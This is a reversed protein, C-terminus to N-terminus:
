RRYEIKCFSYFLVGRLFTNKALNSCTELMIVRSKVLVGYKENINSTLTQKISGIYDATGQLVIIDLDYYRIHLGIYSFFYIYRSELDNDYERGKLKEWIESGVERNNIQIIFATYSNGFM